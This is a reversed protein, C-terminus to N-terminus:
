LLPQFSFLNISIFLQCYLPYHSIAKLWSKYQDCIKIHYVPVFFWSVTFQRANHTTRQSTMTNTTVQADSLGPKGAARMATEAQLYYILFYVLSPRPSALHTLPHTLNGSHSCIIYCFDFPFSWISSLIFSPPYPLLLSTLSSLHSTHSPTHPQGCPQKQRYFSHSFPANSPM